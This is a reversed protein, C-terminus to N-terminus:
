FAGRSGGIVKVDASGERKVCISHTHLQSPRTVLKVAHGTFTTFSHLYEFIVYLFGRIVKVTGECFGHKM